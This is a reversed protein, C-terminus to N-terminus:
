PRDFRPHRATDLWRRVRDNFEDVTMGAHTAELLMAGQGSGSRLVSAVDGALAATIAPNEEWEPHDGQLRQLEDLVFRPVVLASSLFGTAMLTQVRGDIIINSDLLLPEGESSDRRFRVYPIVVAFQDRESRLAFTIGFFSLAAYVIIEIINLISDGEEISKFWTLQFIGVRTVLWACFLGILLGFTAHSFDRMTFRVFLRDLTLLLGMFGAGILAGTWAPYQLGHAIIIGTFVTLAFYIARVVRISWPSPPSM